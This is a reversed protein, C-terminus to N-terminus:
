PMWASDLKGMGVDAKGQELKAIAASVACKSAIYERKLKHRERLQRFGAGIQRLYQRYM